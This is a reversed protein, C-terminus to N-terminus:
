MQGMRDMKCGVWGVWGVPVHGLEEEAGDEGEDGGVEHGVPEVVRARLHVRDLVGCGDREEM